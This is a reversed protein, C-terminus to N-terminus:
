PIEGTVYGGVDRGMDCTYVFEVVDGQKVTYASASVDPYEGNVRYLWGSLSGFDFECINGIGSVYTGYMGGSYDVRVRQQRAAATLADFASAGEPLLVECQAIVQGDAPLEKRDTRGTDDPVASCDASVTVRMNGATGGSYYEEPTKIDLLWVGGAVAALLVAAPILARKRKILFLVACVAAALGAAASIILKIHAGTFGGAAAEATEEPAIHIDETVM